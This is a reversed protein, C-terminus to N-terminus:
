LVTAVIYVVKKLLFEMYQGFLVDISTTHSDCYAAITERVDNNKYTNVVFNHSDCCDMM